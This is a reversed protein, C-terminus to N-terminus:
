AAPALPAAWKALSKACHKEQGTLVFFLADIVVVAKIAWAQGELACAACHTSITVWPGPRPAIIGLVYLPWFIVFAVAIDILLLLQWNLDNLRQFFASLHRFWIATLAALLLWAILGWIM